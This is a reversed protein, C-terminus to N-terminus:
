SATTSVEVYMTKRGKNSKNGPKEKLLYFHEKDMNQLTSILGSLEKEDILVKAM